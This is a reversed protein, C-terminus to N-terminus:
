IVPSPTAYANVNNGLPEPNDSHFLKKNFVINGKDASVCIVFFDHGELTATTLWVQDGLVVPTSWGRYPIATKWSINETESWHLPLGILSTAGPGAVHGDGFPGRFEPWEAQVPLTVLCALWLLTPRLAVPVSSLGLRLRRWFFDRVRAM